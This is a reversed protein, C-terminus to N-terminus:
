PQAPKKFCKEGYVRIAKTGEEQLVLGLESERTVYYGIVTGCFVDYPPNGKVSLKEGIPWLNNLKITGWLYERDEESLILKLFEINVKEDPPIEIYIKESM